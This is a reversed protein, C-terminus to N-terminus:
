VASGAAASPPCGHRGPCPVTWSVTWPVTRDRGFRGANFRHPHSCIPLPPGRDRSEM